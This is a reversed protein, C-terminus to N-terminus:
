KSYSMKKVFRVSKQDPTNPTIEIQYFYTGSTVPIGSDDTADWEHEFVGARDCSTEYSHVSQGIVNFIRLRLHAEAALEYRIITTSNFPNPYNQHLVFRTPIEFPEEESYENQKALNQAATQVVQIGSVNPDEISRNFVINLQGDAVHIQFTRNLAVDHGATQFIDFNVLVPTGEIQVHFVRKGASQFYVEAFLLTVTYDGAPVDFQYATLGWRVSQYLYDDSTSAIPDSTAYTNGDVYGWSGSSYRQDASWFNGDGATYNGSGCNVRQTYLQGSLVSITLAVSKNGGNSTVYINGSYNGDELESRDVSVTVTATNGSGLSGSGPTTSTIWSEDPNEAANWTLTGGGINKVAFTRSTSATGFNLALPTVELLPDDSLSIVEIASINAADVTSALSIELRSDSVSVPFTKVAAAAYGVDACVDYASLVQTGEISVNFIRKGPYQYYIESFHLVVNYQGNAVDFLYTLWKTWRVSQYLVDNTTNAIPIANVYSSGVQYGWSGQTYVKDADWLNSEGDTYSTSSGCNVRQLYVPTPSVSMSVNITASGYDSTVSIIGTYDGDDLGSRNVTVAVTQTAYAGLSGGAPSISTIWGVDPNEAATWALSGGGANSVTFTMSSALSGFDLSVPTVSLAPPGPIQMSIAVNQTGGNSSVSVIGSYSGAALGSRDVLVTVTQSSGSGLSGSAPSVTTLWTQDPNEAATWNLTGAGANTVTFTKSNTETGFDLTVPTVSLTPETVQAIVEIASIMPADVIGTMVIDLAGDSVTVEFTKKTAVDHGVSAYIDYYSLLETGEIAIKFIRKQPEEYYIEAFHLVVQYTGNATDFRYALPSAWRVSQYLTVDGTQAIIDSTYHTRGDIYGWSGESYPKDAEWLRGYTGNYPYSSGCNVRVTLPSPPPTDSVSMTIAIEQSGGDSTVSIIGSYSGAALGTRNINVTVSQSQGSELTGAAPSISTLWVQDPNEAAAWTLTGGGVNEVSFSMSSTTSGFDISQPTVALTPPGAVTMNVPLSRSGGNSSISITGSYDGASLGSRDISISVTQSQGSSLSGSAPTLSTLWSEDPAETASWTLTGAGTNSVAFSQTNTSIGFDLATPTVTLIPEEIISQVEIACVNAADVSSPMDIDLLGDTVTTRFTKVTAVDHGVSAYIDYNDLVTVGEINIDFVRRNSGQFYIEAFHLIVEYSGNPVTFRYSLASNWRVSQYLAVNVTNTIIDPTFYSQGEVYGWSGPSFTQDADWVAGTGDSYGYANGCNVRQTYPEQPTSSDVSLVVPLNKDGSNTILNINGTYTGSALGERDVTVTVSQSQGNNLNGSGPSVSTIWESEPEAIASWYLIDAGANAVDLTLITEEDQFHLLTPSLALQPANPNESVVEIASLTAHAAIHEFDIDLRGDTVQIGTFTRKTANHFGAEAYIDFDNLVNQEEIFTDFLRGGVYNYYLESFHLIVTYSGNPVDFRYGDIWFLVNQYLPDDQTNGINDSINYFNGRVHGWGGERYPRDASWINNYIDIYSESGVNIRFTSPQIGVNLEVDIHTNGANSNIAIFSRYTGDNLYSRNVNVSVEIEETSSLTGSAPSISTIWSQEPDEAAFWELTGIGGNKITFKATTLDTNFDLVHQYTVLIPESPQAGIQIQLTVPVNGNNSNVFIEAYHLGDPLLSRNIAVEVQTSQGALLSGSSNGNIAIWTEDPNETATWDLTGEGTNSVTFSLNNSVLGFDLVKPTVSLEGPELEIELEVPIDLPTNSANPDSIRMTGAYTGATLGSIDASITVQDGSSGSVNGLSLWGQDPEEAASWLLEGNGGNTITLNQSAPNSAGQYATFQVSSTSANIIPENSIVTLAVIVEAPNNAANPDDISIRAQYAGAELGTIDVSISVQDGDGGSASLLTLWSEDPQETANWALAGTGIVAVTITQDSPNNGDKISSFHLTDPDVSIAYQSDSTLILVADDSFPPTYSQIGGSSALPANEYIGQGPDFWQAAYVRNDNTLTVNVTGGEPLYIIHEDFDKSLCFGNDVKDNNPTLEWWNKNQFFEYLIKLYQAGDSNTANMDVSRLTNDNGYCAFGGGMVIAWAYKRVDDSSFIHGNYDKAEYGFETNVVPMNYIRDTLVATNLDNVPANGPNTPLQQMISSLWQENAFIRNTGLNSADSHGPHITVPHSYPDASAIVEGHYNYDIIAGAEDFEGVIVWYLLPYAAYRALLYREFREFESRSFTTFHQAWTIYFGMGMQVSDLYAIRKDVWNFFEPNLTQGSQSIWLHGGENEPNETGIPLGGTGLVFQINNFHQQLRTDIFQQFTGDSFSVTSSMLCWNTEGLLFFPGSETLEFMHPAADNVRLVGPHSSAICDFGGTMGDLGPDNSSTTYTWTGIETPMVRLKWVNNQQWYGDIDFEDGSPSVVHASLWVDIYPNSYTNNSNLETEFQRYREIDATLPLTKMSLAVEVPSNLANPDAIQITGSYTGEPLGSRDVQISITQSAGSVVGGSAPSITTIWSEEPVETASWNLASGGSNTITVTMSQLNPGYDLDTRDITLEPVHANPNDSVFLLIKGGWYFAEGNYTESILLDSWGDANVDGANTVSFGAFDGAHEGIFVDNIQSLSINRQWGSSKGKILYMKGSDEGNANNYCAGIMFDAYGDGNMDGAEQVDWGARDYDSEGIYSADADALNSYWGSSRGLVLYVKGIELANQYLYPAGIAFDAFGDANVDGVGSVRWGTWGGGPESNLIIDAQSADFNAGWDVSNRGFFLYIRGADRAGIAFDPIGDGNVDGVGDVSYGFTGSPQTAYFSADANGINAHKQWGAAKGLILYVKGANTGGFDNFPAGCLFDDYGDGNMDGIFATSVADFDDEFEQSYSAEADLYLDFTYGWNPNSRGFVVYLNGGGAAILMDKLGDGNVDGGGGLYYGAADTSGSGIFRADASTLSNNFGWDAAEKGLILYAAGTNHGRTSNHFTGILFDDFGDGNVDGATHLYYGAREHIHTGLFSASPTLSGQAYLLCSSILFLVLGYITLSKIM